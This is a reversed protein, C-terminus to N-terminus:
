AREAVRNGCADGHQVAAWKHRRVKVPIVPGVTAGCKELMDGWHLTRCGGRAINPQDAGLWSVLWSIQKTPAFIAPSSPVDVDRFVLYIAM